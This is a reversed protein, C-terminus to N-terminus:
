IYYDNLKQSFREGTKDIWALHVCVCVCFDFNMYLAEDEEGNPYFLAHM